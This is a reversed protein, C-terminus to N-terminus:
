EVVPKTYLDSLALPHKSIFSLPLGHWARAHHRRAAGGGGPRSRLLVRTKLRKGLQRLRTERARMVLWRAVAAMLGARLFYGRCGADPSPSNVQQWPPVPLLLLFALSGPTVAGDATISYPTRQDDATSGARRDDVPEAANVM